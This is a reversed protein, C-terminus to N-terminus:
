KPAPTEARITYVFAKVTEDRRKNEDAQRQAATEYLKVQQESKEASGLRRYIQALRYHAEPSNTDLRACTEAEPLAEQLRDMSLYVKALKCHPSPDNGLIGAAARLKKVTENLHTRDGATYDRQFLLAGCYFQMKGNKPHGDSYACIHDLAAPDPAGSQDLQIDGLFRLAVEPDPALDAAHVLMPATKADSGTFHEIMGLALQIRWSKPQSEEAQQLVVKAADFGQHQMLEVALSIRYKEEDPALKVAAQYGQVASLNDGREEQIDGILDEVDATDALSKSKKASDLAADLQRAKFQALSLNFLLDSRGPDLEAATKLEDVSESVQGHAILVEALRQRFAIEETKPLAIIRLQDLTQHFDEHAGLKAELLLLGAAPDQTKSFVTDALSAARQRNERQLEVAATALVLASDEPKLALAKEMETAAVESSGLGSAVSAKLRYFAIRKEVDTPPALGILATQAEKYRHLRALIIAWEFRIEPEGRNARAARALMGEAKELQGTQEYIEGLAALAIYNQPVKTIVNQLQTEALDTQGTLAYAQGLMLRASSDGPSTQLHSSLIRIAEEPNGHALAFQAELLARPTQTRNAQSSSQSYAAVCILASLSYFIVAARWAGCQLKGRVTV